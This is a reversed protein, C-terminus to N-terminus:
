NYIDVQQQQQAQFQHQSGTQQHQSQEQLKQSLQESARPSRMNATSGANNHEM